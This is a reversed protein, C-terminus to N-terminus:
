NGTYCNFMNCCLAVEPEYDDSLLINSATIDRHIIRRQCDCHLYKLGEAIGSAVKFRISWDLKKASDGANCITSENSLAMHM